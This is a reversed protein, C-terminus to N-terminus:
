NCEIIQKIRHRMASRISDRIVKVNEDRAHTGLWVKAAQTSLLWTSGSFKKAWVHHALALGLLAPNYNQPGNFAGSLRTHVEQALDTAKESMLKEMKLGGQKAYAAARSSNILAM